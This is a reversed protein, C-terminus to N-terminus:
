SRTTSVHQVHCSNNDVAPRSYALFDMNWRKNSGEHTWNNAKRRCWSVRISTEKKPRLGFRFKKLHGFFIFWNPWFYPSFLLTIALKLLVVTCIVSINRRFLFVWSQHLCHLTTERSLPSRTVCQVISPTEIPECLFHTVSGAASESLDSDFAWSVCSLLFKRQWM